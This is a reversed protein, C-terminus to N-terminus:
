LSSPRGATGRICSTTIELGEARLVEIAAICNLRGVSRRALAVSGIPLVDAGGFLKIEVEKRNVGLADFRRAVDRISYDVYHHGNALSVGNVTKPCKPLQAHLLAGAGLRPSWFTVAVCSGLVTRIVAPKLTFYMEGPQVYVEAIEELDGEQMIGPIATEARMESTEPRLGRNQQRFPLSTM